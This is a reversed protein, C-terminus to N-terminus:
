VNTKQQEFRSSHSAGPNEALLSRIEWKGFDHNWTVELSVHPQTSERLASSVRLTRVLGHGLHVGDASRLKWLDPGGLDKTGIAILRQDEDDEELLPEGSPLIHVIGQNAIPSTPAMGALNTTSTKPTIYADRRNAIWLFRRRGAEDCQLDWVGYANVADLSTWSVPEMEIGQLLTPDSICFHDTWQVVREWRVTFIEEELVPRGKWLLVDEVWLRRASPSLTASFVTLGVGPTLFQPDMRLRLLIVRRHQGGNTIYVCCGHRPWVCLLGSRTRDAPRKCAYWVNRKLAPLHKSQFPIPAASRLLPELEKLLPATDLEEVFCPLRLDDGVNCMKIVPHSPTTMVRNVSPVNLDSSIVNSPVLIPLDRPNWVTM